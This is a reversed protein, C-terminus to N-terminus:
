GARLEMIGHVILYVAILLFYGKAIQNGHKSMFSKVPVMVIESKKPMLISIIVPFSIMLMTIVILFVLLSFREVMKLGSDSIIKCAAIYLILTSSNVIMFLFGMIIFPRKHKKKNEPKKKKGFILSRGIVLIVLIGFVIDMAANVTDPQSTSQIAPKIAILLLSGLIVLFIISGLLFMVANRKPKEKGSLIMTVFLLGSPSITAAVALPLIEILTKDM